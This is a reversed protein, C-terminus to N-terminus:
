RQADTLGQVVKGIADQAEQGHVNSRAHTNLWDSFMRLSPVLGIDGVLQEFQRQQEPTVQTAM